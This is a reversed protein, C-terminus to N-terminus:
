VAIFRAGLIGSREFAEKVRNSVILAVEWGAVRFFEAGGIADRRVRLGSIARYDGVRDPRGDDPKWKRADRTRREDVCDISTTANAVFFSATVGDVRIPVLQVSDGVTSALAQACRHSVVPIDLSAHTYDLMVGPTDIPVHLSPNPRERKSRVFEDPELEGDVIEPSGLHWREPVHLDDTLQFYDTTM